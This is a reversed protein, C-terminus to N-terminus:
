RAPEEAGSFAALADLLCNPSVPKPCFRAGPFRDCVDSELVHGSHFVLPIGRAALVEALPFVDGDKLRVDLIAAAIGEGSPGEMAELARDLRAYPGAVRYGEAEVTMQVDMAVIPEDECLLIRAGRAGSERADKM